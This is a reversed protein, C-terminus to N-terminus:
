PLLALHLGNYPRGTPDPPSQVPLLVRHSSGRNVYYRAGICFLWSCQVLTHKATLPAETISLLAHLFSFSELSKKVTLALARDTIKRATLNDELSVDLSCDQPNLVVSTM